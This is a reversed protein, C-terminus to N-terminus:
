FRFTAHISAAGHAPSLETHVAAASASPRSAGKGRAVRATPLALFPLSTLLILAGRDRQEREDVCKRRDYVAEACSGGQAVEIAGWGSLAVGAVGSLTAAWWPLASEPFSAILMAAGAAVAVSGVAALGYPAARRGDWAQVRKPYLLPNRRDVLLLADAARHRRADFLAAAVWAAAGVGLATSSLARQWRRSPAVAARQTTTETGKDAERARAESPPESAPAGERASNADSASASERKAATAPGPLAVAPEAHEGEIRAEVLAAVAGALAREDLSGNAGAPAHARGVLRQQRVRVRLLEASGAELSVLVVDDVDLERGLQAGHSVLKERAPASGEYKLMLRPESAIARDFETDVVMSVPQDGLQVVHVRAPTRGCEVQVRYEGAAARDLEFPTTGLHRGNVYVSCSSEPKSTIGLRGIRMRGLLDDAEALVGIVNAPHALESPVLDPVLRRCRTAQALAVERKGRQLESRVLSLCADLIRRATTTERNLSELTREARSIVDRVSNQAAAVRGFAVHEVAERAARALADVDSDSPLKPPRSHATFRDRADHLSVLSLRENVLEAEVLGAARLAEHSDAAGFPVVVVRGMPQALAGLPAGCVFAFLLWPL